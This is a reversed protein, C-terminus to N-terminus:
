RKELHRIRRLDGRPYVKISLSRQPVESHIRLLKKRHRNALLVDICGALRDAHLMKLNHWNFYVNKYWTGRGLHYRMVLFQGYHADSTVEVLACSFARAQQRVRVSAFSGGGGMTASIVGVTRLGMHAKM